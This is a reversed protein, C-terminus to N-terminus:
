LIERKVTYGSSYKREGRIVKYINKINHEKCFARLNDTTFEKGDINTLIFIRYNRNKGLMSNRMKERTIFTIVRNKRAKSLNRKHNDSFKIGKKINSLLDKTEKSHHGWSIGKKNKSIRERTENSIVKGSAGDGGDSLNTLPGVNLNLRGITKILLTELDFAEEESLNEKIKLIIPEKGIQLINRITQLRLLKIENIFLKQNKKSKKLQHLYRKRRGKGVYFPEYEFEFDKYKYIGKKRIDLYIYVYFDKLEDNM